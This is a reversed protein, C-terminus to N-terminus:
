RRAYKAREARQTRTLQEAFEDRLEPAMLPLRALSFFDAEDPTPVLASDSIRYAHGDNHGFGFQQMRRMVERGLEWPGTRIALQSGWQAPPHVLYLELKLGPVGHFDTIQMMREAGKVWTGLREMAARVPAIDPAMTGFLDAEVMRPECIFEIDGVHRSKRRLSGVAKMRVVLPTIEESAHRALDYAEAFPLSTGGSSM